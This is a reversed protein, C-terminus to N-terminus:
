GATPQRRIRQLFRGATDLLEREAGDPKGVLRWLTLVGGAYVAAGLLILALM